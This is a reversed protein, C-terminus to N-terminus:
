FAKLYHVQIKYGNGVDLEYGYKDDDVQLIRNWGDRSSHDMESGVFKPTLQRQRLRDLAATVSPPFKGSLVDSSREVLFRGGNGSSMRNNNSNAGMNGGDDNGANTNDFTPSLTSTNPGVVTGTTKNGVSTSEVTGYVNALRQYNITGPRTNTKPRNTYDLCNRKNLNWMLTDTHPLGFGHGMEHCMTYQRKADDRTGFYFENLMGVSGAILNDYQVVNNVGMWGTDGFNNNCMKLVGEIIGCAPDPASAVQTSLTLADPTGSDWDHVAADFYTKWTSDLANVVTLTLGGGVQGASRKWTLQEGFDESAFLGPILGKLASSNGFFLISFVVLVFIMVVPMVIRTFICCFTYRKPKEISSPPKQPTDDGPSREGSEPDFNDSQMTFIDEMDSFTSTPISEDDYSLDIVKMTENFDQIYSDGKTKDTIAMIFWSTLDSTCISAIYIKHTGILTPDSRHVVRVIERICTPNGFPARRDWRSEQLYDHENSNPRSSSIKQFRTKGGIARLPNNLSRM